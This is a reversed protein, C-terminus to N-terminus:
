SNYQRSRRGTKRGELFTDFLYEHIAKQHQGEASLTQATSESPSTPIAAFLVLPVIHRLLQAESM